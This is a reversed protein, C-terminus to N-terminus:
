KKRLKQIELSIKSVVKKKNKKPFHKAMNSVKNMKLKEEKTLKTM